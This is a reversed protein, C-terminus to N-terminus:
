LVPLHLHRHIFWCSVRSNESSRGAAAGTSYQLVPMHFLADGGFDAIPNQQFNNEYYEAVKQIVKASVPGFVPALFTQITNHLLIQPTLKKRLEEPLTSLIQDNLLNIIYGENEDLGMLYDRELFNISKLYDEDSFLEKINKPFLDGHFVPHAFPVESSTGNLYFNIAPKKKLCSVMQEFDEEKTPDVQDNQLCGLRRGLKIAEPRPDTILITNLNGAAGSQCYARAFLDRSQPVLALLSTSM